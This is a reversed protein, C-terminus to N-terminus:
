QIIKEGTAEYLIIANAAIHHARPVTSNCSTNRALRQNVHSAICPQPPPSINALENNLKEILNKYEGKEMESVGHDEEDGTSDTMSATTSENRDDTDTAHHHLIAEKAIEGLEQVKKQLLDKCLPCSPSEDLCKCHFSHFCGILISWSENPTSM